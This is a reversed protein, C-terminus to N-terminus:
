LYEKDRLYINIRSDMNSKISALETHAKELHALLEIKSCWLKDAQERM